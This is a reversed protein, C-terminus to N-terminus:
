QPDILNPGLRTDSRKEPALEFLALSELTPAIALSSSSQVARDALHRENERAVDASLNQVTRRTSAATARVQFLIRARHAACLRKPDPHLEARVARVC